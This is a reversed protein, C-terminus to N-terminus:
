AGGHKRGNQVVAKVSPFLHLRGQVVESWLSITWICSTGVFTGVVVSEGKSPLLRLKQFSQLSRAPISGTCLPKASGKVIAGTDSHNSARWDVMGRMRQGKDVEVLM